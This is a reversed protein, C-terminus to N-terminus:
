NKRCYRLLKTYCVNYSTIRYREGPSIIIESTSLSKPLFGGDGAIVTFKKDNSFRVRFISSNSGNLVRFRYTGANINLVPEFAGNVLIINGFYGFVEDHM